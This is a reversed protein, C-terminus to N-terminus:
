IYIKDKEFDPELIQESFFDGYECHELEYGKDLLKDTSVLVTVVLNKKDICGECEKLEIKTKGLSCNGNFCGVHRQYIATEVAYKLSYKDAGDEKDWYALLLEADWFPKEFYLESLTSNVKGICPNIEKVVKLSKLKTYHFVLELSSENYRQPVDINTLFAYVKETEAEEICQANEIVLLITKRNGSFYLDYLDKGDITKKCLFLEAFSLYQKDAIKTFALMKIDDYIAPITCLEDIKDHVSKLKNFQTIGVHKNKYVFFGPYHFESDSMYKIGDKGNVYAEWEKGDKEDIMKKYNNKKGNLENFTEIMSYYRLDDYYYDIIM